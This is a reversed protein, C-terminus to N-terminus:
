RDPAGERIATASVDERFLVEPIGTFLERCTGSLELDTHTRFGGGEMRGAVLFRVGSARLSEMAVNASDAGGYYVPDIIRMATDYGVVYTRRPFLAAKELFSPAQTVVVRCRGGVTRLRRRLQPITLREKDVNSVSLELDVPQGTITSAAAALGAHGTHFPNFSGPMLVPGPEAGADMRGDRHVLLWQMEGSFLSAPPSPVLQVSSHITVGDVDPPPAEHSGAEVALEWLVRDALLREQAERSHSGKTFSIYVGRAQTETRICLHAQEAGRRVRETALAATLAIGAPRAQDGCTRRIRALAVDAMRRATEASVAKEPETGVLRHLSAPAVPIELHHVTRSGGPSALLRSAVDAGGGALAIAIEVPSGHIAELRRVDDTGSGAAGFETSSDM